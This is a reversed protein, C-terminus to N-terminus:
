LMATLNEKELEPEEGLVLIREMNKVARDAIIRFGKENIHQNKFGYYSDRCFRLEEEPPEIFWGEEKQGYTPMHSLVRTLMYAGEETRCFREQARIVGKVGDDSWWGVRICFFHTLGLARLHKWLVRLYILYLEEGMTPDSCGQLWLFAKTGLDDGVFRAESDTLFDRIKEKFYKSAADAKDTCEQLPLGLGSERVAANVEETMERDFYHKISVGGKTIHAYACRHGLEEWNKVTFPALSVGLPATKESYVAFPHVTGEEESKLNSMSSVFHTNNQYDALESKVTPDTLDGYAAKLDVYAFEGVPYATSKFEGRDAGFRRPKHLYEYSDAYTIQEKPPYVAAGMMNSQGAFVFLERKM